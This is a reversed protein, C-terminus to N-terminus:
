GETLVPLNFYCDSPSHCHFLIRALERSNSQEIHYDSFM